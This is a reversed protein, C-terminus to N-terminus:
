QEYDILTTPILDFYLLLMVKYMEISQQIGNLDIFMIQTVCIDRFKRDLQGRRRDLRNRRRRSPDTARRDPQGFVLPSAARKM